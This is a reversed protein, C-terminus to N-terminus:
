ASQDESRVEAQEAAIRQRQAAVTEHGIAYDEALVEERGEQVALEAATDCVERIEAPTWGETGRAIAKSPLEGVGGHKRAAKKVIEERDHENPLEFEIIRDFRGPRLLAPDLVGPRNTAAIVVVNDQEFGDMLTLLMAVLSRSFDHTLSDRSTAISDIEDFFIISHKDDAAAEKFLNRLKKESEGYYMDVIEPGRVQYFDSETTKAIVRALMTKGTGPQGVFLVGKSPKVGMASLADSNKIPVHILKRIQELIDGYGGFDEFTEEISDKDVKFQSATTDSERPADVLSIPDESLLELIKDGEGRVQNGRQYEYVDDSSKPIIRLEGKASVITRRDDTRHVVGIWSEDDQFGEPALEISTDDSSVLVVCGVTFESTDSVEIVRVNGTLFQLHLEGHDEDVARVRGYLLEESMDEIYSM